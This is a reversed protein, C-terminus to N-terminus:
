PSAAAKKRFRNNRPHEMSGGCTVSKSEGTAHSNRPAKLPAVELQRSALEHDSPQLVEFLLDKVSKGHRFRLMASLLGNVDLVARALGLKDEQSCYQLATGVVVAGYFNSGTGAINNQLAICIYRRQDPAGYELLRQMIFNGYMHISLSDADALFHQVLSRMQDHTCTKLLAEIIRCGYRHRCAEGIAVVGEKILEDIIFSLSSPQMSNICKRLVHNAHPCTLAERIHGVLEMALRVRVQEDVANEFADQVERCGAADQSLSWVHGSVSSERSEGAFAPASPIQNGPENTGIPIRWPIKVPASVTTKVHAGGVAAPLECSPARDSSGCRPAKGPLHQPQSRHQSRLNPAQPQPTPSVFLPQHWSQPFTAVHQNAISATQSPTSAVPLQPKDEPSADLCFSVSDPGDFYADMPSGDFYIGLPSQTVRENSKDAINAIRPSKAQTISRNGGLLTPLPSIDSFIQQHRCSEGFYAAMPSELHAPATQAETALQAGGENKALAALKGTSTHGRDSEEM